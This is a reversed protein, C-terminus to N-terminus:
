NVSFNTEVEELDCRAHGCSKCEARQKGNYTRCHCCGWGPALNPIDEIAKCESFAKKDDSM